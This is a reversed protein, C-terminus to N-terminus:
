KTLVIKSIEFSGVAVISIYKEGNVNSLDLEYETAQSNVKLELRAAFINENDIYDVIQYADYTVPVVSADFLVNNLTESFLNIDLM